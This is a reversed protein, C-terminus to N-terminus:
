ILLKETNCKLKFFTQLLLCLSLAPALGLLQLAAVCGLAQDPHEHLAVAACHDFEVAFCVEDGLIPENSM